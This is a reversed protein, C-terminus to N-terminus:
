KRRLGSWSRAVKQILVRPRIVLCTQLCLLVMIHSKLLLAWRQVPTVKPLSHVEAWSGPQLAITSVTIDLQLYPQLLRCCSENGGSPIRVDLFYRAPPYWRYNPNSLTNSPVPKWVERILPDVHTESKFPNDVLLTSELQPMANFIESPQCNIQIPAHSRDGITTYWSLTNTNSLLKLSQLKLQFPLQEKCVGLSWSEHNGIKLISHVSVVAITGAVMLRSILFYGASSSGFRWVDGGLTSM